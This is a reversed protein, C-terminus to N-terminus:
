EVRKVLSDIRRVIEEHIENPSKENVEIQICREDEKVFRLYQNRAAIMHDLSEKETLPQGTQSAREVVRQHSVVPDIDLHIYLNPYPFLTILNNIFMQNSGLIPSYVKSSEWYRETIVIGGDNLAPLIYKQTNEWLDSLLSLTIIDTTFVDEYYHGAKKAVTSLTKVHRSPKFGPVILTSRSTKETFYSKLLEAQTTKGSGDLGCFSLFLGDM